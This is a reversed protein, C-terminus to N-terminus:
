PGRTSLGDKFHETKVTLSRPNQGIKWTCTVEFQRLADTPNGTEKLVVTIPQRDTTRKDDSAPDVSQLFSPDALLQTLTSNRVSRLEEFKKDALSAARLEMRADLATRKVMLNTSIAGLMVLTFVLLAIMVEVLTMGRTASSPTKRWHSQM